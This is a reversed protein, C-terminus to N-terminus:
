CYNSIFDFVRKNAMLFVSVFVSSPYFQWINFSLVISDNVINWHIWHANFCKWMFHLSSFVNIISSNVKKTRSISRQEDKAGYIKTTKLDDNEQQTDCLFLFIYFFFRYNFIKWKKRYLTWLSSWPFFGYWNERTVYKKGHM